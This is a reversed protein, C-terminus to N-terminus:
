GGQRLPADDLSLFISLIGSTLTRPAERLKLDLNADGYNLMAALLRADVEEPIQYRVENNLPPLVDDFFAKPRPELAIQAKLGLEKLLIMVHDARKQAGPGQLFFVYIKYRKLRSLLSPQLSGPGRGHDRECEQFDVSAVKLSEALMQVRQEVTLCISTSKQVFRALQDATLSFPPAPSSLRWIRVAGGGSLTWLRYGDRSFSMATVGAEHGRLVLISGESAIAWVRVEGDQSAVALHQGDPSFVIGTVAASNEFLVRLKRGEPISRLEVVGNPLGMALM